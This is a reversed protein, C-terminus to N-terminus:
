TMIRRDPGSGEEKIMDLLAALRPRSSDLVITPEESERLRVRSGDSAVELCDAGNGGSFSSKQWAGM